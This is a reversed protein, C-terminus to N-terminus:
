KLEEKKLYGTLSKNFHFFIVILKDFTVTSLFGLIETVRYWFYLREFMKGDIFLKKISVSTTLRLCFAASYKGQLNQAVSPVSQMWHGPPWMQLLGPKDQSFVAAMPLHQCSVSLCVATTTNGSLPPVSVPIWSCARTEDGENRLWDGWQRQWEGRTWWLVCVEAVGKPVSGNWRIWFARELSEWVEQNGERDSNMKGIATSIKWLGPLEQSLVQPLKRSGATDLIVILAIGASDAAPVGQPCSSNKQSPWLQSGMPFSHAFKSNKLKKKWHSIAKM